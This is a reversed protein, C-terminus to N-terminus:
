PPKESGGATVNHKNIYCGEKRYCYGLSLHPCARAAKYSFAEVTAGLSM